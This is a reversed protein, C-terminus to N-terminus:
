GVAVRRCALGVAFDVFPEGPFRAAFASLTTADEPAGIQALAEVAALGANLDTEMALLRCLAPRAARDGLGELVGICLIRVDPDPSQLLTLIPNVAVAGMRRLAEIVLGRLATDGSGLLQALVTASPETGIDALAISIAQRVSPEAEAALATALERCSVPDVALDFAATRREAATEGDRLLALLAERSRSQPAVEVASTTRVLPM